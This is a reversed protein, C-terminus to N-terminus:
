PTKDSRLRFCRIQYQQVDPRSTVVLPMKELGEIRMNINGLFDAVPGDTGIARGPQKLLSNVVDSDSYDLKFQDSGHPTLKSADPDDALPWPSSTNNEAQRIVFPFKLAIIIVIEPNLSTEEAVEPQM